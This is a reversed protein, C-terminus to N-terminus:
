DEGAQLTKVPLPELLPTEETEASWDERWLSWYLVSSVVSWVARGLTTNADTAAPVHKGFPQESVDKTCGGM